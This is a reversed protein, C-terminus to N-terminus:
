FLDLLISIWFLLNYVTNWRFEHDTILELKYRLGKQYRLVKKLIRKENNGLYKSYENYFSSAQKYRENKNYKISKIIKITRQIITLGTGVTNGEHQRYKMTAKPEAIIVSHFAEAVLLVWFDHMRLYQPNSLQILRRLQKNFVMLCGSPARFILTQQLTYDREFNMDRTYLYNLKDDVVEYTSFYLASKKEEILDLKKVALKLKDKDWVDDQDCFAYYDAEGANKILDLYSKAPGLNEGKYITIRDDFFSEIIKITSDSSGDDRVIIEVNVGEQNLVSNIQEKIYREGNFTSLLVKVTKM